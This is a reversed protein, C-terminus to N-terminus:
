LDKATRKREADEAAAARKTLEDELAHDSFIVAVGYSLAIVSIDGNDGNWVWASASNTTEPKGYAETLAGVVTVVREADVVLTITALVDDVFAHRASNVPVGAITFFTERPELYRVGRVPTKGELVPEESPSGYKKTYDSTTMVGPTDGKYDFHEKGSGVSKRVATPPKETAIPPDTAQPKPAPAVPTPPVPPGPKTGEVEAPLAAPAAVAVPTPPQNSRNAVFFVGVILVGIGGCVALVFKTPDM